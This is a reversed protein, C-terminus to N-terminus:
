RAYGEYSRALIPTDAALERNLDIEILGNAVLSLIQGWNEPTAGLEAHLEGLTSADSEAATVALGDPWDRYRHYYLEEAVKVRVSSTLEDLSEVTFLVAQSECAARFNAVVKARKKSRTKVIRIFRTHGRRDHAVFDPTYDRDDVRIGSCKSSWRVVDPDMELVWAMAVHSYCRLQEMRQGCKLTPFFSKVMSSSTTRVTRKQHKSKDSFRHSWSDSPMAAALNCKRM